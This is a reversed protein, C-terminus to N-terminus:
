FKKKGNKLRRVIIIIIIVVVLGICGPIIYNMYQNKQTNNETNQNHKNKNNNNGNQEEEKEILTYFDMMKGMTQRRTKPKVNNQEWEGM